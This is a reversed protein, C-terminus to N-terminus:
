AVFEETRPDLDIGTDPDYHGLWEALVGDWASPDSPDAPAGLIPRLLATVGQKRLASIHIATMYPQLARVDALQPQPAKRVRDILAEAEAPQEAAQPTVVTVGSSDIMRFALKRDRKGTRVDLPGSAVTEFDLVKRAEQIKMGRHDPHELNLADYVGQYYATLAALDDPDAKGLGFHTRTVGVLAKYAPPQGGDSLRVIVVRGPRPLNGERNARGAAQLLSDAPALVRYVVPFDLDVGAEILQTSVLLVPLGKMLRGNVETLVRRRHEACMRTSLHWAVGRPVSKAWIDFVAKADATTNVVVLAQREEVEAAQAAMEAITLEEPEWTFEVRRLEGVLATADSVIDCAPLDRFPSLHWFDPQTASSLLVTVKFHRVLTRLADLIPVLLAHPLAQIEDLVIVSGALRHLRRMAAPRRDFLSEFLRVMTTIVFPADWNEAALRAWRQGPRDFDVGSHHELVVEGRGDPDLLRRYVAANQETITLFPVAVIVRRMGHEAAHHLAFGAGAITKGSGTPSALRYVGPAKSAAAVCAQYVKERPADMKSAGYERREELMARRAAEFGDRLGRFDADSRVDPFRRGAFHASTDLYDADCLASFVLRLGMEAQQWTDWGDPLPVRERAALEPLSRECRRLADALTQADDKLAPKLRGGVDEPSTLGGHHGHIAMAFKGLGLEAALKVGLMKHDLGVREGTGEVM